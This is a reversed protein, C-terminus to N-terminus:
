AMAMLVWNALFSLWGYKWHIQMEGAEQFLMEIRTSLLARYLSM